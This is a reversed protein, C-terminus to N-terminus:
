PKTIGQYENLRNLTLDYIYGHGARYAIEQVLKVLRWNKCM